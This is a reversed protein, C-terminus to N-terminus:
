ECAAGPVGPRPLVEHDLPLVAPDNRRLSARLSSARSVQIVIRRGDPSWHATENEGHEVLSAATRHLYALAASPQTAPAKLEHPRVCDPLRSASKRAM